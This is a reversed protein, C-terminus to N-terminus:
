GFAARWLGRLCVQLERGGSSSSGRYLKISHVNGGPGGAVPGNDAPHLNATIIDGPTARYIKHESESFVYNEGFCWGAFHYCHGDYDELFEVRKDSSTTACTTTETNKEEKGNGNVGNM